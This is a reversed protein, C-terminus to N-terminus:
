MAQCPDNQSGGADAVSEQSVPIEQEAVKKLRHVDFGYPKVASGNEDLKTPELSVTVNGSSWITIAQAVGEFGTIRDKYINGMVIEEYDKPETIPIVGEEVTEIRQEDFWEDGLPREDKLSEAEVVVRNCGYMWRSYGVAIGTFGTINDKVRSGLQIAM